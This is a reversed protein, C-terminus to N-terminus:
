STGAPKGRANSVDGVDVPERNHGPVGRPVVAGGLSNKFGSGRPTSFCVIGVIGLEYVTFGGAVFWQGGALEGQHNGM